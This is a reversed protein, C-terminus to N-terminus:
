ERPVRLRRRRPVSTDRPARSSIGLRARLAASIPKRVLAREIALAQEAAYETLQRVQGSEVVAVPAGDSFVIRNGALAAIREGPTVIGLLNLPDAASVAVLQGTRPTRRTARLRAVADPLAFQEGTVGAIFRGGRIEGRAELRRYVLLLERWPVPITERTLLRSFVVGYRKLLIWAYQALAEDRAIADRVEVRSWRGASEIGFGVTRHRRRAGAVPKRRSAPVLLARLGAFSDSTVLGSVALEGLAVEVQTPLLRTGAVLETFFSAGRRDLVDLVTRAYTSL